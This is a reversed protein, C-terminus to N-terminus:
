RGGPAGGMGGGGPAGGGMGGSMGGGGPMGGGMGGFPNDSNSTSVTQSYIIDGESLGSKIETFDDGSVGITVEATRFGAPAEPLAAGKGGPAKESNEEPANDETPKDDRDREETHEGGKNKDKEGDQPKEEEPKANAASEDKVFVFSRGMATKIDSTPVRLVNEAKEVLVSADVNMSPRLNGPEYVTVEATYTTVGNSASGEVSLNTIEGSYIEGPLADCTIEM